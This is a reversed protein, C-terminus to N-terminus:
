FDTSRKFVVADVRAAVGLVAGLVVKKVGTPTDLATIEGHKTCTLTFEEHRGRKKKKIQRALVLHKQSEM